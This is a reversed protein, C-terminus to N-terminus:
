DREVTPLPLDLWYTLLDKSTPDTANELYPSATLCHLWTALPASDMERMWSKTRPNKEVSKLLHALRPFTAGTLMSVAERPFGAAVVEQIFCLLQRHKIGKGFLYSEIFDPTGLPTGLVNIGDSEPWLRASEKDLPDTLFNGDPIDYIPLAVTPDKPTSDLFQSWGARATPQVYIMNKVVQTTLAAEHWAM